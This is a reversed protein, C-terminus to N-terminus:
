ECNPLPIILCLECVGPLMGGDILASADGSNATPDPTLNSQCALVFSPVVTMGGSFVGSKEAFESLQKRFVHTSAANESNGMCFASTSILFSMRAM